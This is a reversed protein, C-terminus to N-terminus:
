GNCCNGDRFDYVSDSYINSSSSKPSSSSSSVTKVFESSKAQEALWEGYDDVIMSEYDTCATLILLSFIFLSFYVARRREDRM